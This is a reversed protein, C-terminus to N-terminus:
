AAKRSREEMRSNTKFLERKPTKTCFRLLEKEKVDWVDQFRRVDDMSNWAGIGVVYSHDAENRWMEIGHCGYEEAKNLFEKEFYKMGQEEMGKKFHYYVISRYQSM